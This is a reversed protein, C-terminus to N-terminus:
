SLMTREYDGEELDKEMQQVEEITLKPGDIIGAFDLLTKKKKKVPTLVLTGAKHDMKVDVEAGERLSMAKSYESPITVM